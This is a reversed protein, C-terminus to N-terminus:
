REFKGMAQRRVYQMLSPIGPEYCLLPDEGEIESPVSVEWIYGIHSLKRINDLILENAPSAGEDQLAKGVLNEMEVGSIYKEDTESFAQGIRIAPSRLNMERLEAYRDKYMANCKSAAKKEVERVTDMKVESAGTEHLRKAICDGWVQIFYPYRHARRSVETAAEHDFAIGHQKLPLTLADRAEESSLRGLPFIASRSWFTADAKRLESELNPTGALVLFFPCDEGRIDQSANFLVRVIDPDLTHAEDMIMIVPKKKCKKRLVDKLALTEKPRNLSAQARAVGINASASLNQFLPRILKQTRKLLGPDNGDILEILQGTGEFESPTLWLTELRDDTKKQLYRLMATKGNGRPGYVIMDSVINQRQVLKELRDEFFAQEEMRGALYPPESGTGPRFLDKLEVKPETM